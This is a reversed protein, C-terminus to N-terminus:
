TKSVCRFEIKRGAETFSYVNQTRVFLGNIKTSLEWDASYGGTGADLIVNGDSNLYLRSGVYGQVCVEGSDLAPYETANLPANSVGGLDFYFNKDPVTAVIYPKEGPAMAVLVITDKEVGVFVGMGRGAYPQPIPCPFTHETASDLYACEVYTKYVKRIVALRIVYGIPLKM